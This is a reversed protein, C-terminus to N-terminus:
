VVLGDEEWSGKWWVENTVGQRLGTWGNRPGDESDVLCVSPVPTQGPSAHLPQSTAHM